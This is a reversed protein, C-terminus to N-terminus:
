RRDDEAMAALYYNSTCQLHKQAAATKGAIVEAVSDDTFRLTQKTSM